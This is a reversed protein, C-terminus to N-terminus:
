LILLSPLMNTNENRDIKLIYKDPKPHEDVVGEDQKVVDIYNVFIEMYKELFMEDQQYLIYFERVANDIDKFSYSQSEYRFAINKIFTLLAVVNSDQQISKWLVKSELKSMILNTCQGIIVTFM